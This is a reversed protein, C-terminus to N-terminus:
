KILDLLNDKSTNINFIINNDIIFKCEKDSVIVEDSGLVRYKADEVSIAFKKNNAGILRFVTGEKDESFFMIDIVNNGKPAAGIALVPVKEIKAKGSIAGWGGSLNMKIIMDLGYLNEVKKLVEGLKYINLELNM